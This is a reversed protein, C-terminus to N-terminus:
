ICGLERMTNELALLIVTQTGNIVETIKTDLSGNRLNLVRSIIQKDHHKVNCMTYFDGFIAENSNERWFDNEGIAIIQIKAGFITSVVVQLEM